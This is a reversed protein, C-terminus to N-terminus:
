YVEKFVFVFDLVIKMCSITILKFRGRKLGILFGGMGGVTIAVAKPITSTEEETLYKYAESLPM